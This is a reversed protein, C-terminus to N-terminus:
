EYIEAGITPIPRNMLYDPPAIDQARQQRQPFNQNKLCHLLNDLCYRYWDYGISLMAPDPEYVAIEYPESNEIVVWPSSKPYAGTIAKYGERYMAMQIHLNYAAISNQFDRMLISQSTKLDPLLGGDAITSMHDPRFKCVFGTVPDRYYGSRESVGEKFIKSAIPHSAVAEVVGIFREYDKMGEKNGQFIVADKPQELYWKAKKAKDINTQSFDPQIIVKKRFEAPELVLLHSITGFRMSKTQTRERGNQIKRIEYLYAYPSVTFLSLKSSSISTFDSHHEENTYGEPKWHNIYDPGVISPFVIDKGNKLKPIPM